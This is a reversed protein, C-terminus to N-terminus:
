NRFAKRKRERSDPQFPIIKGGADTTGFTEMLEEAEMEKLRRRALVFKRIGVAIMLLLIAWWVLWGPSVVVFITHHKSLFNRWRYELELLPEGTLKEVARAFDGERELAAFLQGLFSPGYRDVLFRVFSESEAYALKAKDSPLPFNSALRGLPIFDGRMLALSLTAMTGIGVEGAVYRAVGEDFYRPLEGRVKEHAVLHFLEHAFVQEVDVRLGAERAARGSLMVIFRRGGYARGVSWSPAQPDIERYDDVSGALIVRASFRSLDDGFLEGIRKLIAPAREALYRATKADRPDFYFVLGTDKTRLEKYNSPPAIDASGAAALIAVLLAVAVIGEVKGM